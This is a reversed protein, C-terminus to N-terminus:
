NSSLHKCGGGGIATCKYIGSFSVANNHREIVEIFLTPRDQQLATFLQLLYGNDDFDM